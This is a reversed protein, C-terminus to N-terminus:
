LFVAKVSSMRASVVQKESVLFLTAKGIDSVLVIKLERLVSTFQFLIRFKVADTRVRVNKHKWKFRMIKKTSKPLIGSDAARYITACSVSFPKKDLKARGAIQEPSWRLDLKELAYERAEGDTLIPKKGCNLRRKKYFMDAHNASYTGDAKQNRKFERSVTSPSRNLMRAIARISFGQAKMVRTMEREDTSFHTYHCM